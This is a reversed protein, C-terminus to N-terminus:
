QQIHTYFDYLVEQKLLMHACLMKGKAEHLSSHCSCARVAAEFLFLGMEWCQGM